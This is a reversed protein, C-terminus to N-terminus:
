LGEPIFRQHYECSQRIAVTLAKRFELAEIITNWALMTPGRKPNVLAGCASIPGVAEIKYDDLPFNTNAFAGFYNIAARDYARAADGESAYSGLEKTGVGDPAIFARWRGRRFSVGKYQSLSNRLKRQNQRNQKTTCDRLNHRRCDLGNGDRHDVENEKQANMIFRHLSIKRNGGRGKGINAYAYVTHKRPSAYWKHHSVREYDDDDILAEYGKTLKIRKM